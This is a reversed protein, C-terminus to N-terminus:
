RLLRSAFLLLLSRCGPRCLLAIEVKWWDPELQEHVVKTWNLPAPFPFRKSGPWSSGSRFIWLETIPVGINASSM